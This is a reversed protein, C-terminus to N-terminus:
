SGLEETQPKHCRATVTLRGGQRLVALGIAFPAMALQGWLGPHNPYDLLWAAVRSRPFFRQWWLAVSGVINLLNRQHVIEVKEFGADHLLRRLRAPTFFHLHRPLEWVYWRDRFIMPEWCGANPVSFALLGGPKLIRHIEQLSARVDPLHELVAWAFMADLTATPLAASELTGEHVSLGSRCAEDVAASVLEVGQCTWGANQLATLFQGTGCGLELAKANPGPAAPLVHSKTDTLWYYLQKLGPIARVSRSLYWPTSADTAPPVGDTGSDQPSDPVAIAADPSPTLRSSDPSPPREAAQAPRHPGYGGPYCMSLTELTPRPNMFLHRCPQCRVVHFHGPVGHLFDPVSVYRRTDPSACLPCAIQELEITKTHESMLCNKPLVSM